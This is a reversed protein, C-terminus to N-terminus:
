EEDEANQLFNEMDEEDVDDQEGDSASRNSEDSVDASGEEEEGEEGEEEADRSQREKEERGVSRVVTPVFAMSVERKPRKRMQELSHEVYSMHFQNITELIETSLSRRVWLQSYNTEKQLRYTHLTDILWELRVPIM